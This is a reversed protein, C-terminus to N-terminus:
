ITIVILAVIIKDADNKISYRLLMIIRPYNRKTWTKNDVLLIQADADMQQCGWWLPRQGIVDLFGPRVSPSNCQM